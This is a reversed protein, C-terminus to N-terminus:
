ALSIVRKEEVSQYAAYTIRLTDRVDDLTSVPPTGKTIADVFARAQGAFASAYDTDAEIREGNVYLADTIMLDGKTGAMRIGSIRDGFASAISQMVTCVSGDAYQLAVQATDECEMNTRVLKGTFASVATPRGLLYLTQYVLHHGSDILTGGTGLSKKARWGTAHADSIGHSSIFFSTVIQGLKGSELVAKAQRVAGRYAFNHAPFVVLGKERSLKEIVDVQAIETVLPKEVLVHKGANLAAIIQDYHYVNISGIILADISPDAVMQEFSDYATIKLDAAKKKLLEKEAAVTAADGFFNHCIGTIAAETLPAFGQAHWDSIFGFGVMGINLKKM